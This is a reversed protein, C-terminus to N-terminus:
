LYYKLDALGHWPQYILPEASKHFRYGVPQPYFSIKELHVSFEIVFPSRPINHKQQDPDPETISHKGGAICRYDISNKMRFFADKKFVPEAFFQMKGHGNYHGKDCFSCFDASSNTNKPRKVLIAAEIMANVMNTAVRTAFRPSFKTISPPKVIDQKKNAM